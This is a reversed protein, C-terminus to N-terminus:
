NRIFQYVEYDEISFRGDDRINEYYYKRQYSIEDYATFEHSAYINIDDGFCPGSTTSFWLACDTVEINSIIADKFFIDNNKLSFIFTDEAECWDNSSDWVLPNYGGIIEDSDRVKIFTVTNPKGDCLEHFKEPTFGDRSGRLLLKFEYPLYLERIYAFKNDIIKEDIWRSIISIIRLDIIQSNIRINRPLLINETPENDPDMYSNVLDEYLQHKLLKKYPRVKQVFERSSLCFFRVLPFCHQLTNKMKNFDDDTWTVPDPILTPNQALGWKLVHEWVKIEKMQLDDREILKILSKELLSTFDFSDFIKEPTKAMLNTCFQQMKLLNDSQFSIRHTLEFHQELWVSRREILYSQLYDVLEQLRLDNAVALVKFIESTDQRNVLLIGGYIYKLIIQFIEPLINPLRIHTLNNNQTTSALIRRFYPSRYCLINKHARFIKAYPDEGVEITTDYYEDDELLEIYNQSLKSFFRASM